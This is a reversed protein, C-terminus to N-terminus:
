ANNDEKLESGCMPCYNIKIYGGHDLCDMDERDVLRIYGQGNRNQIIVSNDRYDVEDWILYIEDDQILTKYKGEECYECM